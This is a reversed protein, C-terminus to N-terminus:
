SRASCRASGTARTACRCLSSRGVDLDLQDAVFLSVDQHLVSWGAEFAMVLDHDVLFADPM